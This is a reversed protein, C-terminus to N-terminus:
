EGEVDEPLIELRRNTEQGIDEEMGGERCRLKVPLLREMKVSEMLFLAIRRGEGNPETEQKGEPLVM